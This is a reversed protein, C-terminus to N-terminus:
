AKRASVVRDRKDLDAVVVVDTLGAASMLASVAAGQQWGIEVLLRGGPELHRPAGAALARYASLGDGEDTLALRPEHALEPALDAMEDKAIYPPNSVILDFSGEVMDYWDSQRLLAGDGQGLAARNRVAVDLAAPSLDTGLGWAGQTEALLTLLICGSGTGLDLVREFPHSLAAEILTETEPRPDLVDPTVIFERGYFMRTGILHSVPERAVRRAILADYRTITEATVEEPLVLTLRGPDCALVHALIRRADRGAGDIGVSKLARTARALIETGTM